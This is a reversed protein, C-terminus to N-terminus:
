EPCGVSVGPFLRRTVVRLRVASTATLFARARERAVWVM